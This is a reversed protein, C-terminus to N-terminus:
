CPINLREQTETSWLRQVNAQSYITSVRINELLRYCSKYIILTDYSRGM